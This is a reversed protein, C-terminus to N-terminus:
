RIIRILSGPQTYDTLWLSGASIAIGLPSVGAPTLRITHGTHADVERAFGASGPGRWDAVWVTSQGVALNGSSPFSPGRADVRVTMGSNHAVGSAFVGAPGAALAGSLVNHAVVTFAGRVSIRLITGTHKGVPAGATEAPCAAWVTGHGAVIRDCYAATPLRQMVRGDRNLRVIMRAEPLTVWAGDLTAAVCAAASVSTSGLVRGSSADIRVIRSRRANVSGITWVISGAVALDCPRESGLRFGVDIKSVVKNRAPDVRLLRGGALLWVSGEGAAVATPFAPVPVEARRSQAGAGANAVVGITTACVIVSLLVILRRAGVFRWSTSRDTSVHM